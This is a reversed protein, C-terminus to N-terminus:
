CLLVRLSADVKGQTHINPMQDTITCLTLATTLLHSLM